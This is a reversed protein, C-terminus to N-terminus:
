SFFDITRSEEGEVVHRVVSKTRHNMDKKAM